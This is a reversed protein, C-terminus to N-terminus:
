THRVPTKQYCMLRFCHMQGAISLLNHENRMLACTRVFHSTLDSITMGALSIYRLVWVSHHVCVDLSPVVTRYREATLNVNFDTLNFSRSVASLMLGLLILLRNGMLKCYFKIPNEFLRKPIHHLYYVPQCCRHFVGNNKRFWPVECHLAPVKPTNKMWIM